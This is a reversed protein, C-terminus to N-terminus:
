SRPPLISSWALRKMDPGEASATDVRTGVPDPESVPMAEVTGVGGGPVPSAVAFSPSMLPQASALPGALLWWGKGVGM